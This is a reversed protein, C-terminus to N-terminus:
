CGKKAWSFQVAGTQVNHLIRNGPIPGVHRPEGAGVCLPGRVKHVEKQVNGASTNLEMKKNKLKSSDLIDNIMFGLRQGVNRCPLRPCLCPNLCPVWPGAGSICVLEAHQGKAARSAMM